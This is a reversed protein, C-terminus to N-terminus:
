IIKISHLHDYHYLVQTHGHSSEPLDSLACHRQRKSGLNFHEATKDGGGTVILALFYCHFYITISLYTKVNSIIKM